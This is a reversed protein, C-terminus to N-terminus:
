RVTTLFNVGNVDNWLWSDPVDVNPLPAGPNTRVTTEPKVRCPTEKSVRRRTMEASSLGAVLALVAFTRM